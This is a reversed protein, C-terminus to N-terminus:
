MRKANWLESAILVQLFERRLSTTMCKHFSATLVSHVCKVLAIRHKQVEERTRTM